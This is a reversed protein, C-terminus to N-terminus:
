DVGEREKHAKWKDIAREVAKGGKDVSQMEGYMGEEAEWEEWLVTQSEGKLLMPSSRVYVSLRIFM